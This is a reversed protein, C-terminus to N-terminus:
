DGIEEIRYTHEVVANLSASASCYKKESLEIAQELAKPKIGNGKLVYEIRLRTFRRPHDEAREGTINVQLGMIGARKKQMIAVVDIATCGAVGMLVMDMPTPGSGGDRSDMVVAAGGEARGVFQLGEMWKIQASLSM